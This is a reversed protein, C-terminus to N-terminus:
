NGSNYRENVDYFRNAGNDYSSYIGNYPAGNYYAFAPSSGLMGVVLSVFVTPRM